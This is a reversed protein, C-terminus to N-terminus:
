TTKCFENQDDVSLDKLKRKIGLLVALKKAEFLTLFLVILYSWIYFIAKDRIVHCEIVNFICKM